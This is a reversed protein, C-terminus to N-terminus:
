FARLTFYFTAGKGLESEVWIRGGHREVIKKCVALGIGSGEFEERSHLRKFIVFIKEAEKPDIGIGDDKVTFLWDQGARECTVYIQPPKSNRYKIANGILNQFLQELQTDDAMVTPLPDHTIKAGSEQVAMALGAITRGFVAECDVPAFEKGKTGVRSFTLLDNILIQMRKAGDVAFEIFEHAEQDLKEKYRRALLHTYGAVMRLPEQLDHSAVYAFQELEANSRKLEGAQKVTMEHLQSNHIAVAAQDALASLFQIEADAFRYEVRPAIVLDGVVTGKALMPLGLYSVVGQRRYFDQDLTRPDTQVNPVWVARQSNVVEQVLPPVAKLKRGKWDAEDMNWCAARELEGSEANILWIQVAANPWVSGARSVVLRLVEQLDLTSNISASVEYLAALRAQGATIEALKLQLSQVLRQNDAFAKTLARLPVVRLIVYSGAGLLLAMVAFASTEYLLPRLSRGITISGVPVGADLIEASRWLTPENIREASEAIVQGEFDVIRRVEPVTERPRRKVIEELQAQRFLWSRPNSSVFQSVTRGHIEAESILVADILRYSTAFYIAPITVAVVSGVIAAIWSIIKHPNVQQERM